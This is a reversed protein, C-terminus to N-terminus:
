PEDYISFLQTIFLLTGLPHTKTHHSNLSHKKGVDDFYFDKFRYNAATIALGTSAYSNLLNQRHDKSTLWFEEVIKNSIESVDTPKWKKLSKSLKKLTSRDVELASSNNGCQFPYNGIGSTGNPFSDNPIEFENPPFTHHFKLAEKFRNETESKAIEDLKINRTLEPLGDKSRIENTKDFVKELILESFKRSLLVEKYNAGKNLIIGSSGGHDDTYEILKIYAGYKSRYVKEIQDPLISTQVLQANVYINSMLLFLILSVKM